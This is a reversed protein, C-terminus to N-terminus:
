LSDYSRAREPPIPCNGPPWPALALSRRISEYTTNGSGFLLAFCDPKETLVGDIAIEATNGAIKLNRPTEASKGAYAERMQDAFKAREELTPQYGLTRAARM